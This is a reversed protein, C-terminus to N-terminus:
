NEFNDIATEVISLITRRHVANFVVDQFDVWDNNKAEENLCQKITKAM